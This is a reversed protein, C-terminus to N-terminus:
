RAEGRECGFAIQVQVLPCPLHEWGSIELSKEGSKNQPSVTCMSGQVERSVNSSGSLRQCLVVSLLGLGLAAGYYALFDKGDM